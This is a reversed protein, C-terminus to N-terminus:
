FRYSLNVLGKLQQNQKLAIQQRERLEELLIKSVELEKEIAQNREERKAWSRRASLRNRKKREYLIISRDKKRHDTKLESFFNDDLPSAVTLSNTDISPFLPNDTTVSLVSSYYVHAFKPGAFRVTEYNSAQFIHHINHLKQFFEAGPVEYSSDDIRKGIFFKRNKFLDFIHKRCEPMHDEPFLHLYSVSQGAFDNEYAFSNSISTNRFQTDGETTHPATPTSESSNKSTSLMSMFDQMDKSTLGISNLHIAKTPSQESSSSSHGMSDHPATRGKFMVPPRDPLFKWSYEQGPIVFTYHSGDILNFAHISILDHQISPKFVLLSKTAKDLVFRAVYPPAFPPRISPEAYRESDSGINVAYGVTINEKAIVPIFALHGEFQIFLFESSSPHQFHSSVSFLQLHSFSQPPLINDTHFPSSLINQLAWQCAWENLYIPHIFRRFLANNRQSRNPPSFLSM